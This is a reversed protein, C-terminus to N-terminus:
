TMDHLSEHFRELQFATQPVNTRFPTAQRVDGIPIVIQFDSVRMRRFPSHELKPNKRAEKIAGYIREYTTTLSFEQTDPDRYGSVSPLLTVHTPDLNDSLTVTGIYVKGSGLTVMVSSKEQQSLFFLKLLASGHKEIVLEAARDRGCVLNTFLAIAPALLLAGAATGSYEFPVLSKWIGIPERLWSWESVVRITLLSLFGLAIGAIASNFVLRYNSYGVARYRFYYTSHLLM